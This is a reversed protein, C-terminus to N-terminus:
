YTFVSALLGLMKLELGLVWLTSPSLSDEGHDTCSICVCLSVCFLLAPTALTEQHGNQSERARSRSSRSRYFSNVTLFSEVVPYM